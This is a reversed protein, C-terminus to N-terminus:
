MNKALYDPADYLQSSDVELAKICMEEGKFHDPVLFFAAPNECTAENCMEQMM